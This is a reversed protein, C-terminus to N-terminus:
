VAITTDNTKREAERKEREEREERKRKELLILLIPKQPSGGHIVLIVNIETKSKVKDASASKKNM